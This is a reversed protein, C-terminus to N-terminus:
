GFRDDRGHELNRGSKIFPTMDNYAILLITFTRSPVHHKSIKFYRLKKSEIIFVAPIVTLIMITKFYFGFTGVINIFRSLDCM